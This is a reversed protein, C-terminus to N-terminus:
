AAAIGLDEELELLAAGAQDCIKRLAEVEVPGSGNDVAIVNDRQGALKALLVSLDGPHYTAVVAVIATDRPIGVRHGM